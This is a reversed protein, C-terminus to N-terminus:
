FMAAAYAVVAPLNVVDVEYLEIMTAGYSHGRDILTDLVTTPDCPTVYNNNECTADGYSYWLTQLAAPPNDRILVWDDTAEAPVPTAVQLNNKEIIFRPGYAERASSVVADPLTMVTPDIPLGKGIPLVMLAQPFAAAWASITSACAAITQDFHQEWGAAVWANVDDPTSPIYWDGSGSSTCIPSVMHVVPNSGLHQGLAAIMAYRYSLYKSDWYVAVYGESTSVWDVGQNWVWQPISSGQVLIRLFVQKNVAEARAVESDVLTWNFVNKKPELKSWAIRVSIGEVNPNQLVDANAATNVKGLSFVGQARATSTAILLLVTAVILNKM